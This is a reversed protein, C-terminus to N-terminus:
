GVALPPQRSQSQYWSVCEQALALTADLTAHRLESEISDLAFPIETCGLITSEFGAELMAAVQQELMRAGSEVQGSKVAYIAAMVQQQQAPDPYGVEIGYESELLQYIGANVTGQTALLAVRSIDRQRLQRACSHAIHLIPVPSIRTLDQHWYHATNCPIAIMSCGSAVLRNLGQSLAALPSETGSVICSTRDPIQPVSHVIMPIHSQDDSAHTNSIVKAMFDVTAMPGM